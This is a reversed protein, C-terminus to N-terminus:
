SLLKLLAEYCENEDIIDPPLFVGENILEHTLETVQPVDLGLSCLMEVQSFVKKPNDDM